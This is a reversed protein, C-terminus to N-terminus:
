EYIPSNRRRLYTENSDVVDEEEKERKKEATNSEEV